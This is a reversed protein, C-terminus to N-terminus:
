REAVRESLIEDRNVHTRCYRIARVHAHPRTEGAAEVPTGRESKLVWHLFSVVLVPM